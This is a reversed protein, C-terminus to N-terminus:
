DPGARNRRALWHSYRMNYICLCDEVQQPRLRQLAKPFADMPLKRARGDLRMAGPSRMVRSLAEAGRRTGAHLYVFEPKFIRALRHATDYICLTGFGAVKCTARSVLILLEEFFELGSFDTKLLCDKAARLVSNPIRRQHSFKKGGPLRARTAETIADKLASGPLICIGRKVDRAALYANAIGDLADPGANKLQHRQCLKMRPTPIDRCRSVTRPLADNKVLGSAVPRFLVQLVLQRDEEKLNGKRMLALFTQAMTVRDNADTHLHVNSLVPSCFIRVVSVGFLGAAILVAV